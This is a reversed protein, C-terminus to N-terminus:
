TLFDQFINTQARFGNSGINEGLKRAILNGECAFFPLLRPMSLLKKHHKVSHLFIFRQPTYIKVCGLTKISM